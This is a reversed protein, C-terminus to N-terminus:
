QPPGPDYPSAGRSDTHLVKSAASISSGPKEVPPLGPPSQPELAQVVIKGYRHERVEETELAKRLKERDADNLLQIALKAAVHGQKMKAMTVLRDGQRFLAQALESAVDPPGCGLTKSLVACGFGDSSLTGVNAQIIQCLYQQQESTGHALIHQMVFNGFSHRCLELAEALLEQVLGHVQETPCNELLREVIRCGFKHKAVMFINGPGIEDIIFQVNEPAMSSICKQLVHNAHPCRMGEWVHGVLERSIAVRAEDSEAEELAQQVRWCGDANRSLKWIDGALDQKDDESGIADVHAGCQSRVGHEESLSSTSTARSGAGSVVDKTTDPKPTTDGDFSCGIGHPLYSAWAPSASAAQIRARVAQAPFALLIGDVAHKGQTVM